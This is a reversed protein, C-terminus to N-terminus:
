DMAEFRKKALDRTGDLFENGNGKTKKAAVEVADGKKSGEHGLGVGAVYLNTEIPAAIGQSGKAGLGQGETWGAKQLMGMGKGYKPQSPANETESGSTNNTSTDKTTKSGKGKISFGVKQVSSGGGGAKAEEQRREAARDRYQPQTAEKVPKAKVELPLRITSDPDIQMNEMRKLARQILNDDLLYKAHMDSEKIHRIVGDRTKFSSNCLYCAIPEGEHAYTQQDSFAVTDAPADSMSRDTTSIANVGTANQGLDKSQDSTADAEEERLEAQKRQYYNLVEPVAGPAKRKKSKNELTDQKSKKRKKEGDSTDKVASKSAHPSHESVLHECPYYHEDHYKHMKENHRFLFKENRELKGFDFHPFVALAAFSLSFEQSSITLRENNREMERARALAAVADQVTHYQVFGHGMRQDTRKDRIRFVRRISKPTAGTTNNEFGAYLKEMGKAFIVETTAEKLGRVLVFLNPHDDKAGDKEGNNAPRVPFEDHGYHRYEMDPDYRPRRETPIGDRLLSRDHHHKVYNLVGSRNGIDSNRSVRRM